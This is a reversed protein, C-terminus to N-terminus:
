YLVTCMKLVQIYHFLLSQATVYECACDLGIQLPVGTGFKAGRFIPGFNRCWRNLLFLVARELCLRM